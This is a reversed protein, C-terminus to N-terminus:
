HRRQSGTIIRSTPWHSSSECCLTSHVCNFWLLLIFLYFSTFAPEPRSTHHLLLIPLLVSCNLITLPRCPPNPYSSPYHPDPHQSIARARPRALLPHYSDKRHLLPLARDARILDAERRNRGRGLVQKTITTSVLYHYMQLRVAM